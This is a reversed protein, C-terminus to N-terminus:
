DQVGEAKAARKRWTVWSADLADWFLLACVLVVASGFAWGGIVDTPWHAGVILRTLGLTPGFIIFGWGLLTMWRRDNAQGMRLLLLGTALYLYIGVMTHGSPFSDDLDEEYREAGPPRQRALLDKAIFGIIGGIFASSLLFAAAAWRRRALLFLAFLGAVFSSWIVGMKNAIEHSLEVPWGSEDAWDRTFSTLAADCGSLLPSETLMIITLAGAVALSIVLGIITQRRGKASRVSRVPHAQAGSSM